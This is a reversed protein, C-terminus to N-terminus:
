KKRRPKTAKVESWPRDERDSKAYPSAIRSKTSRTGYYASTAHGPLASRTKGATTTKRAMTM